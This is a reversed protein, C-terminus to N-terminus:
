FLQLNLAFCEHVQAFVLFLVVCVVSGFSMDPSALKFCSSITCLFLSSLVRQWLCLMLFVDNMHRQFSFKSIRTNKKLIEDFITFNNYM